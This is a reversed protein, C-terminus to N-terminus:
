RPAGQFESGLCERLATRFRVASYEADTRSLAAARMKQWLEEDEHLRCCSEAFSSADEGIMIENGDTWGLQTAILRTGVVPLGATSAEVVKLPIGAAFRTPAIFVRADNYYPELVDIRGLVRVGPAVLEPHVPHLLGIVTLTAERLEMRILPWAERIFWSLADYNPSDKESLRGVFLFGRREAFTSETPILPAYHGLIHVPASQHACFLAAEETSVTLVSHVGETLSIEEKLLTQAEDAGLPRGRVAQMLLDRAFYLAEADYVLRSEALLDPQKQLLARLHRMNHPRSVVVVDYFGRREELFSQLKPLARRNCIEIRPDLLSYANTWDIELAHLPYLTVLWGLAAAENLLRQARPFGSGFEPLPINDDIVLLRRHQSAATRAALINARENPLHRSALAAAHRERFVPHNRQMLLNAEAPDAQSGFEFHDVVASPEYVVRLGIEQLRMCYDVEEYYAPAYREDFGGLRNWVTRHTMLFAGSCYDVDRRFMAEGSMEELGRGYGVTSGDSWVISGAEQLRGSPLILKGGVAGVDPSSDLTALAAALAGDRLFADSNLLLLARGRSV